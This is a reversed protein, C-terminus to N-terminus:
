IKKKFKIVKPKPFPIIFRIDNNYKNIKKMIEEKYNWAIILIIIKTNKMQNLYDYKFIPIGQKPIFKNQRIPSDDIIFEIPINKFNNFNALINGRGSAGYGIIKFGNHYYKKCINYILEKHKETYKQFNPIKTQIDIREKNIFNKIKSSIKKKSLSFYLRISGSHTNIKELNNLNFGYRSFLKKLSFVSYYSMHEHYITDYQYSNLLAKLYHVEIIFDGNVDIIKKVGNIISSINDIHAFVNCAVILDFKGYKKKIQNALSGNFHDNIVEIGKKKAVNSINKSPDIGLISFRKNNLFEELFVGDNCGIEFIKVHSDRKTQNKIKNAFRQFHLKLPKVDSSSYNYKKFLLDSNIIDLIQLYICKSCYYAKLPFTKERLAIKRNKSFNGALPQLGLDLVKTLYNKSSCIRCVKRNNILRKIIKTM